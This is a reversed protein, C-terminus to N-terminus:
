CEPCNEFLASTQDSLSLTYKNPFKVAISVIRGFRHLNQIPCERVDLKPKQRGNSCRATKRPGEVVIDHRLIMDSQLM